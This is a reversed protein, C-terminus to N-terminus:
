RGMRPQNRATRRDLNDEAPSPLLGTEVKLRNVERKHQEKIVKNSADVAKKHESMIAAAANQIAKDPTTKAAIRSLEKMVKNMLKSEAVIAPNGKENALPPTTRETQRRSQAM